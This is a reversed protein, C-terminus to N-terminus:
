PAALTELKKRDPILFGQDQTLVVSERQWRSMLRISTEITTGILDAIEQRSLPMPIFVGEERSQGMRDVLTLFFRAARLEVSGLMDAMRKNLMMLRLTLGAFLRRTMEPHKEILQFFEREPVSLIGAPELAVATAPYPRREYVAVAGVPDGPGLIELILDRGPGAKQIKVRGILVFHIDTAPDGEHFIVEGKEYGRMRCLPAIAERDEPSLASLAPVIDFPIPPNAM